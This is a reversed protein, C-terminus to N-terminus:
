IEAIKPLFGIRHFIQSINKMKESFINWFHEKIIYIICCALLSCYFSLILARILAKRVATARLINIGIAKLMAQYRVNKLGRVRLRKVGTRRDYESMTAEAGARWRYCDKFEETQEHVRRQAIRMERDTYRLYHHGRGQKVPCDAILPCKNCHTSDFAARHRSKKKKIRVPKIKQPCSDIQAKESVKFDSLKIGCKKNRGMTPAILKVDLKAAEQCNKDSGYLSDALLEEPALNLEVASKIAPILANADSEHAPDVQVHTILNLNTKQNEEDKCYTEMIQVQYGQGKHGDYTADADSPNQLSDSPIDKPKKVEVPNEKDSANVNCQENLVRELLKYSHMAKVKSNNKFQQILNFLDASVTSLTKESESPKVMSFCAMGKETLYKESIKKDITNFFNKHSRKLNVLFKHICESFISIRGLRRM